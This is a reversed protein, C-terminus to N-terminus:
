ATVPLSEGSVAAMKIGKLVTVMIENVLMAVCMAAFFRLNNHAYNIEQYPAAQQQCRTKQASKKPGLLGALIVVQMGWSHSYQQVVFM